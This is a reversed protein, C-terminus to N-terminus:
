RASRPTPTGALTERREGYEEASIEGRTFREELIETATPASRPAASRSWGRILHFAFGAFLSLFVLM